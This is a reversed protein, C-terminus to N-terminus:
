KLTGSDSPKVRRFALYDFNLGNGDINEFRITHQGAELHLCLPKGAAQMVAHDWDSAMGGFGGTSPFTQKGRDRGDVTFKRGANKSACYRILLEYHGAMPVGLHWELWHGPADWHSFAKKSVGRKDTRIRVEGGNQGVFAEAETLPLDSLIKASLRVPVRGRLQLTHSRWPRLPRAPHTLKQRMTLPAPRSKGGSEDMVVNGTFTAEVTKGRTTGKLNEVKANLVVRGGREVTVAFSDPAVQGNECSLRLRGKLGLNLPASVVTRCTVAGEEDEIATLNLGPWHAELCCSTMPMSTYGMTDMTVDARYIPDQLLCVRRDTAPITTSYIRIEGPVSTIIEERWDGLVDAILVVSGTIPGDVQGGGFDAIRGRVIEKQLDADWHAARMTYQKPLTPSDFSLIEGEASWLWPGRKISPKKSLCDLGFAELGPVTPDIDACLGAGHIHRTPEEVGWIIKGTAPDVLCMGNKRARTEFGYYIELGPRRPAIDGVYAHDNHGMGVTWLPLGTDDLMVSGLMVEDRGDGDVDLVHTFHAGQGWFRRPLKENDYQWLPQLEGGTLQYAHVKMRGYTGRLALLCPTKGDLYAVAMQNRSALNYSRFGERSPWPARAKEDGTLGDWVVVWEPGSAVKGDEDRPDGEGIKAAVDARGDGDFDHVIYPSYWIGREIAWGLDKKWLLKGDHNYAEIIYTDPSVYWYVHYPDINKGPQKIVYDYRGDGDLDAIGIKTFKYDGDLKISVYPTSGDSDTTGAFGTVVLRGKRSRPSSKRLFGASPELQHVTYDPRVTKQVTLDLFDTTQWIPAANVKVAPENGIRRFVDFVIDPPDNKLLRWGVYVGQPTRLAVVGRDLRAEVRERAFGQVAPHPGLVKAVYEPGSPYFTLCDYYCSGRDKPKDAAFRDDVWLEFRGDEIRVNRAFVAGGRVKEWKKGDFSIGLPRTPGMEVDYTGKPIGTIVTHLVPAGEEGSTRDHLVRPSQLVVGGSWKKHADTDTSWLNWKSDTFKDAVWATRPTTWAEAEFRLKEQAALSGSILLMGILVAPIGITIRM